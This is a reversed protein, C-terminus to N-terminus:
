QSYLAVLALFYYGICSQFRRCLHWYNKQCSAPHDLPWSEMFIQLDPFLSIKRRLCVSPGLRFWFGFFSRVDTRLSCFDGPIRRNVNEPQSLPRWCEFRRCLLMEAWVEGNQLFNLSAGHFSNSSLKWQHSAFVVGVELHVVKLDKLVHVAWGSKTRVKYEWSAVQPVCRLGVRQNCYQMSVSGQDEPQSSPCIWNKMYKFWLVRKWVANGFGTGASKTAIGRM